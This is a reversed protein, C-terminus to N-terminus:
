VRTIIELIQNERERYGNIVKELKLAHKMMDGGFQEPLFWFVPKELIGAIQCMRSMSIRNSGSEYKQLQQFTLGIKNALKQQSMGSNERAVRVLSGVHVDIERLQRKTLM